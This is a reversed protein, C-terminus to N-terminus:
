EVGAKGEGGGYGRDGGGTGQMEKGNDGRVQGTQRRPWPTVQPVVMRREPGWQECFAMEEPEDPWGVAIDGIAM